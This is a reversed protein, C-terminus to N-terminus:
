YKFYLSPKEAQSQLCHFLISDYYTKHGRCKEPDLMFQTFRRQSLFCRQILIYTVLKWLAGWHQMGGHMQLTSHTLCLQFLMHWAPTWLLELHRGKGRRVVTKGKEAGRVSEEERSSQYRRATNGAGAPILADIILDILCQFPQASLWWKPAQLLEAPTRHLTENGIFHFFFILGATESSFFPKYLNIMVVFCSHVVESKTM